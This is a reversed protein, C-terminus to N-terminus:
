ERCQVLTGSRAAGGEPASQANQPLEVWIRMENDADPSRRAWWYRGDHQRGVEAYARLFSDIAAVAAGYDEFDEDLRGSDLLRESLGVLRWQVCYAM